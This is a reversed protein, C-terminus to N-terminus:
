GRTGLLPPAVHQKQDNPLQSYFTHMRSWAERADTILRQLDDRDLWDSPITYNQPGERMSDAFRRLIEAFRSIRSAIIQADNRAKLYDEVAPMAPWEPHNRGSNLMAFVGVHRYGSHGM